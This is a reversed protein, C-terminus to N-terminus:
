RVLPSVARAREVAARARSRRCAARSTAYAWVCSAITASSYKVMGSTTASSRTGRDVKVVPALESASRFREFQRVTVNANPTAV